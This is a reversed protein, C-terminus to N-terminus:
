VYQADYWCTATGLTLTAATSSCALIIGRSFARGWNGFDLSFNSGAPVTLIAVPVNTNVPLTQSDFVQIFQAAAANSFGSFGFLVGAGSKVVRTVELVNSTSNCPLGAPDLDGYLAGFWGQGGTTDEVNLVSSM